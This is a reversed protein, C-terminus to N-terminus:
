QTIPQDQEDLIPIGYSLLIKNIEDQHKALLGNLKRKWEQDRARVGMTIYFTLRPGQNEAVLPTVSVAADEKKAYYSAVPGWLVAADIEGSKLDAIMKEPASGYRRDEMLSYPRAHGMLGNLAMSNGPPAGVQIGIKKDKLAPDRFNKVGALPSGQKTVLAWASKYYPNTTQVEDNGQPYGIIVDCKGARLTNRVFGTAQPFWEYQVHVGLDAAILEAIKNEFGEGKDNSNPMAAPDACVRLATKDIETTLQQQSVAPDLHAFMLLAAGTAAAGRTLAQIFAM